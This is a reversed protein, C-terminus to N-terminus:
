RRGGRKRTHKRLLFILSVLVLLMVMVAAATFGLVDTRKLVDQILSDQQGGTVTKFRYSLVNGDKDTIVGDGYVKWRTTEGALLKSARLYSEPNAGTVAMLGGSGYPSAILQLSGIRTGYDADISLKENSVIRAGSADYRFYLKENNARIVANGAYSGIAIVNRDKLEEAGVSDEYFRVEGTNGAAYRGLLHFLNSVSQYVANDKEKPLVVAVQNYIGDRIFPYPYNNFLMETRDKTNIQMVSDKTIFAWPTAEQNPTCDLDDLELDFAVTVSFNGSVTLNNPVALTLKDGNALEKSLKKSGIPTGNIRVTVLSRSFDLNQAYRFDLSVKSADALSRNVPMTVFYSQEQHYPGRLENGSETFVVHQALNDAPTEVRTSEDVLKQGSAVQSMLTQNGVFRGAKVLLGPSRSTVVLTPQVEQNVLQILAQKELDAKPDLLAKLTDPLRDYLAAVVVAEKGGIAEASYAALPIPNDTLSNSQSFGSLAYVATEWESAATQGPVTVVSRGASVTDLGSMRQNFDRISGDLPAKTFSTEIRSTDYLHLWNDPTIDAPCGQENTTTRIYGEIQLSNAGKILFEGPVTITLRQKAGVPSEPRFSYFKNGNMSLTISSIYDKAVQSIHYDLHVKVERVNWYSPLQFVEQRTASIGSLSAESQAIPTLYIGETGSLEAKAQATGLLLLSLFVTLVVIYKRSM